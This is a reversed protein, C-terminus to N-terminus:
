EPTAAPLLGENRAADSQRRLAFARDHARQAVLTEVARDVSAVTEDADSIPLGKLAQQASSFWGESRESPNRSFCWSTSPKYTRRM